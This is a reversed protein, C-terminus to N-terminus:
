SPCSASLLQHECPLMCGLLVQNAITKKANEGRTKRKGRKEKKADLTYSGNVAAAAAAPACCGRIDSHTHGLRLM